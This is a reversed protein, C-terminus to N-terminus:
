RHSAFVSTKGAADFAVVDYPALAGGAV